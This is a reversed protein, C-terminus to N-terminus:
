GIDAIEGGTGDDVSQWCSDSGCDAVHAMLRKTATMCRLIDDPDYDLYAGAAAWAEPKTTGSGVINHDNDHMNVIYGHARKKMRFIEVFDRSYFAGPLYEYRREFGVIM